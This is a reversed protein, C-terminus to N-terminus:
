LQQNDHHVTRMRSPPKQSLVVGTGIDLLYLYNTICVVFPDNGVFIYKGAAEDIAAAGLNPLTM